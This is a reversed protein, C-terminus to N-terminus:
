RAEEFSVTLDFKPYEVDDQQVTVKDKRHWWELIVKAMGHEVGEKLTQDYGCRAEELTSYVTPKYSDIGNHYIVRIRFVKEM